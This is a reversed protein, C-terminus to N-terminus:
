FRAAEPTSKTPCLFFTLGRRVKALTRLNKTVAHAKMM